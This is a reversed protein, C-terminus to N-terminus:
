SLIEYYGYVLRDRLSRYDNQSGALVYCGNQTTISLNGDTLLIFPYGPAVSSCNLVPLNYITSNKTIASTQQKSIADMLDLRMNDYLATNNDTPDFLIVIDKSARLEDMMGTPVNINAVDEPLSYFFKQEGNIKLNWGIVNGSDDTVQHFTKGYQRVSTSTTGAFIYGVTSFVMLGLMFISVWIIIRRNKKERREETVEARTKIRVM